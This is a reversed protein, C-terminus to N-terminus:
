HQMNNLVWLKISVRNLPLSSGIFQERLLLSPIAKKGVFITLSAEHLCSQVGSQLLPSTSSGRLKTPLFGIALYKTGVQWIGFILMQTGSVNLLLKM